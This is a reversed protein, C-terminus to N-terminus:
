CLVSEGIDIELFKFIHTPRGKVRLKESIGVGPIWLVEDGSALVHLRQRGQAPLEEDPKHTHLYKKLKVMEQMGFPQIFDGPQRERISLSGKVKELSVLIEFSEAPPFSAPVKERPEFVEAFMVKNLAPVITMGPVRVAIPEAAPGCDSSEEKDVFMLHEKGRAVDWKESLSFAKLSEEAGGNDVTMDVLKEVREFSVEIKREKLAQAFMRRLLAASLERLIQLNWRNRDKSEVNSISTACLSKLLEEDDALLRRMNELRQEFDPFESEIRPVVEARIFNRKYAISQNSSDNRWAISKMTLLTEISSRSVDILPRVILLNNHRRVCPIGRLGGAATGRFARFLVTEVQDNLNHALAVVRASVKQAHTEFAGYRFARLDDEAGRSEFAAAQAADAVTSLFVAGHLAALNECYEADADSEEARMKHNVHCCIVPSFVGALASWLSLTFLCVSDAGGSVGILLPNDGEQRVVQKAPLELDYQRLAGNDKLFQEAADWTYFGEAPLVAFYSQLADAMVLRKRCNAVALSCEYALKENLLIQKDDSM